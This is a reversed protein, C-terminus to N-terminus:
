KNGDPKSTQLNNEILALLNLKSSPYDYFASAMEGLAQASNPVQVFIVDQPLEQPLKECVIVSAGQAVAQPIFQHGDVSVGKIAFFVDRPQVDKSSLALAGIEIDTNGILQLVTTKSLIDQLQKM